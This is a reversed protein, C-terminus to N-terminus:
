FTAYIQLRWVNNLINAPFTLAIAISRNPPLPAGPFTKYYNKTNLASVMTEKM